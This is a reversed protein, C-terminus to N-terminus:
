TGSGAWWRGQRRRRHHGPMGACRGVRGVRCAARGGAMMWARRCPSHGPAAASRRATRGMRAQVGRMVEGWARPAGGAATTAAAPLPVRGLVLTQFHSPPTAPLAPARRLAAQPKTQSCCCLTHTHAHQLARHACRSLHLAGSFSRLVCQCVCASCVACVCCGRVFVCLVFGVALKGNSSREARGIDRERSWEGRGQWEGSQWVAAARMGAQLRGSTFARACVCRLCCVCVRRGM